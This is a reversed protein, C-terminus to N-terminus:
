PQQGAPSTTKLRDLQARILWNGETFPAHDSGPLATFSHASPGKDYNAYIGKTATPNFSVCLVFEPPV